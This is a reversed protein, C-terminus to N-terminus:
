IEVELIEDNEACADCFHFAGEMARIESEIIYDIDIVGDLFEIIDLDEQDEVVADSLRLSLPIEIVDEMPEGCRDCCMPLTGRLVGEMAVDHRGKRMLTGELTVGEFTGSFPKAVSGIKDFRIKL